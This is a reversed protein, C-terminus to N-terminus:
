SPRSLQSLWVRVGDPDDIGFSRTGWPNDVLGRAIVAGSALLREHWADVDEVQLVLEVGRPLVDEHSAGPAPGFLEITRGAGAELVVGPGEPSEWAAVRNMALKGEYFDVSAALDSVRFVVRLESADM